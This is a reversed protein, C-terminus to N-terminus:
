LLHGVYPITFGLNLAQSFTRTPICPVFMEWLQVHNELWNPSPFCLVEWASSLLVGAKSIAQVAQVRYNGLVPEWSSGETILSPEWPLVFLLEMGSGTGAWFWYPLRSPTSGYGHAPRLLRCVCWFDSSQKGMKNIRHSQSVDFSRFQYYILNSFLLHSISLLIKFPIFISFVTFVSFLSWWLFFVSNSYLFYLRLLFFLLVNFFFFVNERLFGSFVTSSPSQVRYLKRETILM